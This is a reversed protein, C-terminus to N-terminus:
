MSIGCCGLLSVIGGMGNWFLRSLGLLGFLKRLMFVGMEVCFWGSVM